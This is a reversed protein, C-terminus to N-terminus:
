DMVQRMGRYLWFRPNYKGLRHRKLFKEREKNKPPIKPIEVKM